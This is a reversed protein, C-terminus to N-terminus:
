VPTIELYVNQKSWIPLRALWYKQHIAQRAVPWDEAPLIRATAPFEPGTIKGRMTSPAIRVQPNHRIRKLKGSDSRTMVYLKGDRDAFWVPTPVATGNKRFTALSIYKQSQIEAPISKPM